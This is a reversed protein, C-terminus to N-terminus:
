CSSNVLQFTGSSTAYAIRKSGGLGDHCLLDSKRDGNFDGICFGMAMHWGTKTFRGRNNTYAIFVHGGKDHCLIDDRSDGNFDGIYLSAVAHTCWWMSKSCGVRSYGNNAGYYIWKRGRISDHCMIGDTRRRQLRGETRVREFRQLFRSIDENRKSECVLGKEMRM